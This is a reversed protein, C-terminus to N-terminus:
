PLFLIAEWMSFGDEAGFGSVKLIDEWIRHVKDEVESLPLLNTKKRELVIKRYELDKRNVKGSPTLPMEDLRIFHSPIMYEPLSSKLHRRLEKPDVASKQETYYAALRKHGELQNVVVAQDLIGPYESLKSEIAGLEIRFGRIKVQSDIRGLYEINGDSLWRASDGTKYLKTGPEFPNDIFTKATLEPQNYYGRALGDGAICLEGPKGILVPQLHQDM